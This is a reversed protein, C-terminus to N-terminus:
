KPLRLKEEEPDLHNELWLRDAVLYPSTNGSDEFTAVWRILAPRWLPRHTGM